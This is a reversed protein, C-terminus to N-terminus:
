LTFALGLVTGGASLLAWTILTNKATNESVAGMIIAAILFVDALLILLTSM